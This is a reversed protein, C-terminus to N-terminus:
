SPNAAAWCTPRSTPAWAPFSSWSRRRRSDRARVASHHRPGSNRLTPRRPRRRSRAPDPRPAGAHRLAAAGHVAPLAYVLGLIVAGDNYLLPLPDHILGLKQLVTNILGTDRLLFMWAYTRVLFSTWFPLIVLSLYLNKRSGARSIFLALPFGLLWACLPPPAPSGSLACCFPSTSRISCAPTIRSRDLSSRRRRLRRADARQLCRYHCLRSFCAEAHHGVVPGPVLARLRNMSADIRRSSEVLCPRPDGPRSRSTLRPRRPSWQQRGDLQAEVHVYNGLFTSHVVTASPLARGLPAHRAVRAAEPRVGIGDIWNVTGLFSAVFRTAPRLYIEQPRASRNSIGANMVGIRDSM